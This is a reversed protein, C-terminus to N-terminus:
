RRTVHLSCTLSYSTTICADDPGRNMGGARWTIHWPVSPLRLPQTLPRLNIDAHTSM